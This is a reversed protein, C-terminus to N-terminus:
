FCLLRLAWCADQFSLSITVGEGGCLFRKGGFVGLFGCQWPTTKPASKERAKNPPVVWGWFSGTGTEM